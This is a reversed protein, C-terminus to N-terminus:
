RELLTVRSLTVYVVVLEDLVVVFPLCFPPGFSVRFFKVGYITFLCQGKSTKKGSYTCTYSRCVRALVVSPYSLPCGDSSCAAAWPPGLFCFFFLKCVSLNLSQSSYTPQKKRMLTQIKVRLLFYYVVNKLDRGDRTRGNTNTMNKKRNTKM